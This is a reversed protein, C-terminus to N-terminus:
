DNYGYTKWKWSVFIVLFFTLHADSIFLVIILFVIEQNNDMLGACISTFQIILSLLHYQMIYIYYTYIFINNIDISLLALIIMALSEFIDSKVNGM